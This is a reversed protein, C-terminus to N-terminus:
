KQDTEIRLDFVKSVHLVVLLPNTEQPGQEQLFPHQM